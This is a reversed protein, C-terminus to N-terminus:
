GRVTVGRVKLPLKLDWKKEEVLSLFADMRYVTKRVLANSSSALWNRRAQIYSTTFRIEDGGRVPPVAEFRKRINAIGGPGSHISTDYLVAFSLPHVLRMAEGQALAPLWYGEDFVSDQVRQMVPDTGAVKLANVLDAVEKPPKSPDVATSGDRALLPLFPQLQGAYVGGADIYELVIRDLSDAKDTAQHKGFSIGAGDRLITCASYAAPSTVKGTEFISIIEDIVKKKDAPFAM